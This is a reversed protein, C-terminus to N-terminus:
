EEHELCRNYVLITKFARGVAPPDAFCVAVRTATPYRIAPYICQGSVTDYVHVELWRSDFTHDFFYVHQDATSDTVSWEFEKACADPPYNAATINGTVNLNGNLFAM